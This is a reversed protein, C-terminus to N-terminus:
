YWTQSDEICLAVYLYEAYLSITCAQEMLYQSLDEVGSGKLGSLM